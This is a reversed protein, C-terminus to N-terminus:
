MQWEQREGEKWYSMLIDYVNQQSDPNILEWKHCTHEKESQGTVCTAVFNYSSYVNFIWDSKHEILNKNNIKIEM